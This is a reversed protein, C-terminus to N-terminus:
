STLTSAQQLNASLVRTRNNNWDEDVLLVRGDSLLAFGTPQRLQAQAHIDCKQFAGTM